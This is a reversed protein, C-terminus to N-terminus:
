DDALEKQFDELLDPFACDCYDDKADYQRSICDEHHCIHGDARRLLELRWDAIQKWYIEKVSQADNYNM